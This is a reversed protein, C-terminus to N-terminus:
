EEEEEEAGDDDDDDDSDQAAKDAKGAGVGEGEGDDDEEEDDEWAKKQKKAEIPSYPDEDTDTGPAYEITQKAKARGLQEARAENLLYDVSVMIALNKLKMQSSLRSLYDFDIAGHQLLLETPTRAKGLAKRDVPDITEYYRDVTLKWGIPLGRDDRRDDFELNRSGCYRSVRGIVQQAITDDWASMAKTNGLLRRTEPETETPEFIHLHRVNLLDIGEAMSRDIVLFRILNGHANEPSNFIQQIKQRMTSSIPLTWMTAQKSMMAVNYPGRKLVFRLRDPHKASVQMASSFEGDALLCSYLMRADSAYNTYIVHKHPRGGQEAIDEADYQDIRNLLMIMKESILPMEDRLAQADWDVSDFHYKTMSSDAFNSAQRVCESFKVDRSGSPKGKLARTTVQGGGPRSGGGGGGHAKVCKLLSQAQHETLRVLIRRDVSLRPFHTMDQSVDVYSILGRAAMFFNYVPKLVAASSSDLTSARLATRWNAESPLSRVWEDYEEDATPLLNPKSTLMNILRFLNAPHPNQPTATALIFRVGKAGSLKRSQQIAKLMQSYAAQDFSGSGDKAYFNKNLFTHAEDIIFLTKHLPDPNDNQCKRLSRVDKASHSRGMIYNAVRDHSWAQMPANNQDTTRSFGQEESIWKCGGYLKGFEEARDGVSLERQEKQQKPNMRSLREGYQAHCVLEFVNKLFEANVAAPTSLIIHWGALEFSSSAAAIFSCTKGSGVSHWLLLGGLSAPNRPTLYNRIFEQYQALKTKEGPQLTYCANTLEQLPKMQLLEAMKTGPRTMSTTVEEMFKEASKPRSGDFFPDPFPELWQVFKLNKLYRVERVFKKRLERTGEDAASLGTTTMQSCFWKKDASAPAKQGSVTEWVRRLEEVSLKLDRCEVAESPGYEKTTRKQITTVMESETVPAVATTTTTKKAPSSSSSSSSASPTQPRFIPDSDSEASYEAAAVESLQNTVKKLPRVSVKGPLKRRGRLEVSRRLVGTNRTTLAGFLLRNVGQAIVM